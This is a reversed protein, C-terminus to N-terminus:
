VFSLISEKSMTTENSVPVAVNQGKFSVFLKKQKRLLQWLTADGPVECFYGTGQIGQIIVM